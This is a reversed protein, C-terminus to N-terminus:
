FGRIIGPKQPSGRLYTGRRNVRSGSSLQHLRDRSRRGSSHPRHGPSMTQGGALLVPVTSKRGARYATDGDCFGDVTLTYMDRQAPELSEEKNMTKITEKTRRPKPIDGSNGGPFPRLFVLYRPPSALMIQLLAGTAPSFWPRLGEPDRLWALLRLVLVPAVFREPPGPKDISPSMALLM